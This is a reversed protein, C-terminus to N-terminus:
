SDRLNAIGAFSIAEKLKVDAAEIRNELAFALASGLLRVYSEQFIPDWLADDQGFTYWIVSISQRTVITRVGGIDIVNWQLPQPDNVDFVMPVLQRIRLAGSPYNYGRSWPATITAGSVAATASKMAWDFDGERLLFDRLPNFLLSSYLAEAGQTPDITTGTLKSRTGIEALAQNTISVQTM